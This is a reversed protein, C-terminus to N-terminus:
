CARCTLFRSFNSVGAVDLDPNERLPMVFAGKFPQPVCGSQLSRNFLECLYPALNSAVSKHIHMLM